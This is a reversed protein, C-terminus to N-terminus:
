RAPIIRRVLQEDFNGPVDQVILLSGDPEGQVLEAGDIEGTATDGDRNGRLGNGFIRSLAPETEARVLMHGSAFYLRGEADIGAPYKGEVPINVVSLYAGTAMETEITVWKKSREQSGEESLQSYAIFLRDDGLRFAFSTGASEDDALLIAQWTGDKRLFRVAGTREGDEDLTIVFDDASFVALSRLRLQNPARIWRDEAVNEPEAEAQGFIVTTTGSDTDYNAEAAYVSGDPALASARQAWYGELHRAGPLVASATKPIRRITEIRAGDWEPAEAYRAIEARQFAKLHEDFVADLPPLDAELLAKYRTFYASAYAQMRDPAPQDIDIVECRAELAAHDAQPVKYQGPISEGMDTVLELYRARWRAMDPDRGAEDQMIAATLRDAFYERCNIDYDHRALHEYDYRFTIAHASEHTALIWQNFRAMELAEPQSAFFDAAKWNGDTLVAAFAQWYADTQEPAPLDGAVIELENHDYYWFTTTVPGVKWDIWDAWSLDHRRYLDVVENIVDQMTGSMIADRPSAQSSGAGGALAGASLLAALGYAPWKTARAREVM